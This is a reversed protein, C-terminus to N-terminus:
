VTYKSSGGAKGGETKEVSKGLSVLWERIAGRATFALLLIVPLGEMIAVFAKPLSTMVQMYTAGADLAGFFLAAFFVGIPNSRGLLAVAIATYGWGLSWSESLRHQVGLVECTGTLGALGGSILMVIIINKAVSMGAFRAAISNLGVSRVQFGLTTKRLIFWVAITAAVAILFGANVRTGPIVIPLWLDRTLVDTSAFTTAKGKM